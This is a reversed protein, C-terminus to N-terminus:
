GLGRVWPSLATPFKRALDHIEMTLHIAKQWVKLNEFKLGM